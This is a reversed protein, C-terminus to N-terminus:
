PKEYIFVIPPNQFVDKYFSSRYGGFPTPIVQDVPKTKSEVWETGEISGHWSYKIEKGDFGELKFIKDPNVTSIILMGNVLNQPTLAEMYESKTKTTTVRADPFCAAIYKKMQEADAVSLGTVKVEMNM